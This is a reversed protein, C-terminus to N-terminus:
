CYVLCSDASAKIRLKSFGLDLWQTCNLIVSSCAVADSLVCKIAEQLKASVFPLSYTAAGEHKAKTLQLFLPMEFLHYFICSTPVREENFAAM